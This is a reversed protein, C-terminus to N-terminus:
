LEKGEKFCKDNSMTHYSCLIASVWRLTLTLAYQHLVNWRDSNDISMQQQQTTGGYHYDEQADLFHCRGLAEFIGDSM